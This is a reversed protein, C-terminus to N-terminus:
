ASRAMQHFSLESKQPTFGASRLKRAMQHDRLETKKHRTLGASLVGPSIWAACDQFDSPCRFHARRVLSDMIDHRTSRVTIVDVGPLSLFVGCNRTTWTRSPPHTSVCALSLSCLIRSIRRSKSCRRCVRQSWTLLLSEPSRMEDTVDLQLFSRAPRAPLSFFILMQEVVTSVTKLLHDRLAQRRSDDSTFHCLFASSVSVSVDKFNVPFENRPGIVVLPRVLFKPLM